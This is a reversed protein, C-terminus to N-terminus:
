EKVEDVLHAVRRLMGLVEPTVKLVRTSGVKGLGLGKLTERVRIKTGIPSRVLKIHITDTM